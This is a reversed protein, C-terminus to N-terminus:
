EIINKEFVVLSQFDEDIIQDRVEELILGLMNEGAGRYIGWFKDGFKNDHILKANNTSKLLERLLPNTFKEKIIKKMLPIRLDNWDPELEILRGLKKAMMPDISKRIMEQLVPDKTKQSQYAHEASPYLKGNMSLTSPFFNSLFYHEGIFRNITANMVRRRTLM